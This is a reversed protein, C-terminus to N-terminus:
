IYVYAVQNWAWHSSSEFSSATLCPL